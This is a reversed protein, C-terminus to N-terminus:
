PDPKRNGDSSTLGHEQHRFSLILITDRVFFQAVSIVVGSIKAAAALYDMQQILFTSYIQSFWSSYLIYPKLRGMAMDKLHTESLTVAQNVGGRLGTM